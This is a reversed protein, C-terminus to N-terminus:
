PHPPATCAPGLVRGPTGPIKRGRSVSWSREKHVPDCPQPSGADDLRAPSRGPAHRGLEPRSRPGLQPAVSGPWAGRCCAPQHASVTGAEERQGSEAELDEQTDLPHTAPPHYPGSARCSSRQPVQAAEGLVGSPCLRICTTLLSWRTEPGAAVPWRQGRPFGKWDNGSAEFIRRRTWM